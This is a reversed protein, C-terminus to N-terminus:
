ALDQSILGCSQSAGSQWRAPLGRHPLFIKLCTFCHAFLAYARIPGVPRDLRAALTDGLSGTFTIKESRVSGTAM